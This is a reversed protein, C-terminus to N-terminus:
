GLAIGEPSNEPKLSKPKKAQLSALGGLVISTYRINLDGFM